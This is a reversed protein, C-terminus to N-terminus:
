YHKNIIITLIDMQYDIIKKLKLYTDLQKRAKTNKRFCCVTFILGATAIKFFMKKFNKAITIKSNPSSSTSKLNFDAKANAMATVESKTNQNAKKKKKLSPSKSELKSTEGGQTIQTLAINPRSYNPTPHKKISDPSSIKCIKKEAPSNQTDIM